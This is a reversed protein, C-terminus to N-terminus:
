AKSVEKWATRSKKIRNVRLVQYASIGTGLVILAGTFVSKWITPVGLLIMSNEVIVILLTGLAAGTLSGAGGKIATGGLVVGAIINMEMGLMNTPHNQQMMCTRFLGALSAIMGVIVYLFFKVRKTNFGARVASTENGGIAYIGRGFYSYRLMLFALAYIIILALFAFPMRSTLGSASNTAVFLYSTGFV